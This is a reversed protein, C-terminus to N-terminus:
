YKTPNGKSNIVAAVRRPMSNVLNQLFNRDLKEWEGNLYISLEEINKPHLKRNHVAKELYDWVHEIPNLDPSQFPM